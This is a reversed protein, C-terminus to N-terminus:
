EVAVLAAVVGRGRERARGVHLPLQGHAHRLPAAGVHLARSGGADDRADRGVAPPQRRPAHLLPDARRAGHGARRHDIACGYTRACVAEESSWAYFSELEAGSPVADPSGVPPQYVDPAYAALSASALRRLLPSAATSGTLAASISLTLCSMGGSGCDVLQLLRSDTTTTVLAGSRPRAESLPKLSVRSVSRGTFASLLALQAM